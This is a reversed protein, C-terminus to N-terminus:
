ARKIQRHLTLPRVRGLEVFIASRNKSAATQGRRDAAFRLVLPRRRGRAIEGEGGFLFPRDKLGKKNPPAPNTSSGRNGGDGNEVM